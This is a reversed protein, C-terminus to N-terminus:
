EGKQELAAVYRKTVPWVKIESTNLSIVKGIYDKHYSYSVHVCKAAIVPGCVDVAQFVKGEHSRDYEWDTEVPSSPSMFGLVSAHRPLKAGRTIVFYEGAEITPNDEM